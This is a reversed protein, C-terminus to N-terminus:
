AAVANLQSVSAVNWSAALWPSAACRARKDRGSCRRSWGARQACSREGRGSPHARRSCRRRSTQVHGWMEAIELPTQGTGDAIAASAGADLLADVAALQGRRCAIHLPTNGLADTADVLEAGGDLRALSAAIESVSAREGGHAAAHLPTTGDASRAAALTHGGMSLLARVAAHQGAYAATHLPTLGGDAAASAAGASAGRDILEAIARHAGRFAALHLPTAGQTDYQM